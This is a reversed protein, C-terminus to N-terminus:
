KNTTVIKNGKYIILHSRSTAKRGDPTYAPHSDDTANWVAAPMAVANTSGANQLSFYVEHLATTYDAQTLLRTKGDAGVEHLMYYGRGNQGTIGNSGADSFELTYCDDETLALDIVQRKRSETYPGGQQVVDGASNVVAWTIEEPANDTMITLRVANQAAYANDITLSRHASQQDSDNLDSLWLEVSNQNTATSLQFDTFPPTAITDIALPRLTGTWPTQQLTGNISVNLTASRLTQRGTNRVVLHSLFLPQCIRDPTGLVQLIKAARRDGTPRPLYCTGVVQKTDIDQVFAVIGLEQPNEYGTVPWTYEYYYPTAANLQPSLAQGDSSPLVKRMVYNWSREGNAAPQQWEVREEVAVVYLRLRSGDADETPLLRTRVTLRDDDAMLAEVEVKVKTPMQRCADIYNGLEDEYGLAYAHQGMAFLAPVGSIGYFSARAMVDAPNNLYFPDRNSPFNWHYTIPVMQGMREYIIRDLAPSFQACPDCSTNTFEEFLVLPESAPTGDLRFFVDHVAGAYDGQTLRTTKGDADAQFLQYYGNGASGKIGDGGADTFELLYCDDRTLHLPETIFKRQETYPGGQQVIDGASDYLTWTIEEPKKDTYLRLQAGYKAQVSGAFDLMRTNSVADANGNIDSFWLEAKNRGETTLMFNTMDAFDMTDRELYDLRGTWPYQKVSGNVRVNLTAQNVTGAGDNRFIVKGHYLPSCILDPTDTVNMLAIRGEGEAEPGIYATCLIRRTAIDQVFAVVGLQKEDNLFDVTWQGSYSYRQNAALSTGMTHGDAGTILKRMTYNLEREGNPYPTPSVIHEEIAAVFLRLSANDMDSYPTFAAEVKLVHDSDLQKSVTLQGTAPQQQFYDIVQNLYSYTREALEVGDVFTAPVGTVHYYDVKAQQAERDYNYFEDNAYPYGSHYKIAICDGLRYNIASDLLPSWSACPGCGTNTFEEVLVLRKQQAIAMLSVVILMIGSIFARKM